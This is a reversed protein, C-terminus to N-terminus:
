SRQGVAYLGSASEKGQDRLRPHALGRQQEMQQFFKATRRPRSEQKLCLACRPFEHPEQNGFQPIFCVMLIENPHVLLEVIM